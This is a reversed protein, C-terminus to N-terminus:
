DATLFETKTEVLEIFKLFEERRKEVKSKLNEYSELITM